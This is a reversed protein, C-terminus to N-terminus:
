RYKGRVRLLRLVHQTGIVGGCRAEGYVARMRPSAAQLPRSLVALRAWDSLASASDAATYSSSRGPEALYPLGGVQLSRLRGAVIAIEIDPEHGVDIASGRGLVVVAVDAPEPRVSRGVVEFEDFAPLLAHGQICGLPQGNDTIGQPHRVDVKGAREVLAGSGGQRIHGDSTPGLEQVTGRNPGSPAM